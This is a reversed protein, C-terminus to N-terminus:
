FDQKSFHRSLKRKASSNNMKLIIARKRQPAAYCHVVVYSGSPDFKVDAVSGDVHFSCLQDGTAVRWVRVTKDYSGTVLFHNNKSIQASTIEHVHGLLTHLKELPDINWVQVARKKNRIAIGYTQDNSLRNSKSHLLCQYLGELLNQPIDQLLMPPLVVPDAFDFTTKESPVDSPLDALNDDSQNEPINHGNTAETPPPMANSNNDVLRDNQLKSEDIVLFCFSDAMLTFNVHKPLEIRKVFRKEHLNILDFPKTSKGFSTYAPNLLVFYKGDITVGTRYYQLKKKGSSSYVNPIERSLPPIPICSQRALEPVSYTDISSEMVVFLLLEPKLDPGPPVKAFLYFFANKLHQMSALKPQTLGEFICVLLENRKARMYAVRDEELFCLEGHTKSQMHMNHAICSANYENHMASSIEEQLRGNSLEWFKPAQNNEPPVTALYNGTVDFDLCEENENIITIAQELTVSQVSQRRQWDQHAKTILADMKWIKVSHDASMTVLLHHETDEKARMYNIAQGQIKLDYLEAQREMDVIVLDGNAWGIFAYKWDSSITLATPAKAGQASLDIADYKDEDKDWICLCSKPTSNPLNNFIVVGITKTNRACFAVPRIHESDTECVDNTLFAEKNKYNYMLVKANSTTKVAVVVTSSVPFVKCLSSCIEEAAPSMQVWTEMSPVNIIQLREKSFTLVQKDENIFHVADLSKKVPFLMTGVVKQTTLDIIVLLANALWYEGEKLGKPKGHKFGVAVLNDNDSLAMCRVTLREFEKDHYKISKVKDGSDLERVYLVLQDPYVLYNNDSSIAYCNAKGTNISTLVEQNRLNMVNVRFTGATREQWKCVLFTRDKSLIGDCGLLLDLKLPSDPNQFNLKHVPVLVPHTTTALWRKADFVLQQLSPYVGSYMALREMCNYALLLPDAWLADACLALFDRFINVDDDKVASMYTEYERLVDFTDYAHLKILVWEFNLICREKLTDIREAAILHFPLARLKRLNKSHLPQPTVGRDCDTLTKSNRQRLVITKYIGDEQLYIDALNSHLIKHGKPPQLYRTEAAEWFQRHYWALVTKGDVQREALYDKLSYQLRSWLLSPIRILNDVPPDHYQYVENLVDNDCSLVDELELGSLGSKSCTLYGLANCVFVSGQQKELHAFLLNIVSHVTDGLVIDDLTTYSHWSKAFDLTLRLFLPQSFMGFKTLIFQRQDTSVTRGVRSLYADIIMDASTVSMPTLELYNDPYPVRKKTNELCEFRESLMSVIVFVRAPLWKPLWIMNHAGYTKQLQDVSDLILVLPERHSNGLKDLRGWFRQRIDSFTGMKDDQPLMLNYITSIQTILSKLTNSINSSLPSTGLYRTIVCTDAGMWDKAKSAVYALLATKGYGSKGTVVLPRHDSWKCKTLYKKIRAVEEERGCFIQTKETTFRNHHLVEQFLNQMQEMYEASSDDQVCSRVLRMMDNRFDECFDKLYKEHEENKSGELPLGLWPVHYRRINDEPLIKPVAEERLKDRLLVAVENVQGNDVLDVFRPAYRDDTQSILGDLDRIYALVRSEPHTAKLLGYDVEEETM